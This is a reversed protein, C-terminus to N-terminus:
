IKARIYINMLSDNVVFQRATANATASQGHLARRAPRIPVASLGRLYIFIFAM